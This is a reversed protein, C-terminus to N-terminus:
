EGTRRNEEGGKRMKGEELRRTIEEDGRRRKDEVGRRM